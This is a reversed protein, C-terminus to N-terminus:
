PPGEMFPHAAALVALMLVFAGITGTAEWLRVSGRKTILYPRVVEGSRFPSMLIVAFAIWSVAIASRVPVEGIPRLTATNAIEIDSLM